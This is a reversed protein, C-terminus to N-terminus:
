NPDTRKMDTGGSNHIKISTDSSTFLAQRPFMVSPSIISLWDTM